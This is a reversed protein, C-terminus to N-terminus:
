ASLVTMFTEQGSHPDTKRTSGALTGTEPTRARQETHPPTIGIPEVPPMSLSKVADTGSGMTVGMDLACAAMVGAVAVAAACGVGATNRVNAGVGAATGLCAGGTTAGTAGADGGAGSRGACARTGCGADGAGGSAGGGGEGGRAGAGAAFVVGRAARAGILGNRALSGLTLALRRARASTDSMM